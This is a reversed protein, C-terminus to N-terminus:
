DVNNARVAFATRCSRFIWDRVIKMQKHSHTDRHFTLWPQRKPLNLNSDPLRTLGLSEASYIPLLAIGADALVANHLARVSSSRLRVSAELNREIIWINEPISGYRSDLWLLKEHELSLSSPSRGALYGSSCFLGLKISPLKRVMLTDSKPEALRIAIDAEGSNLNSISTNVDFEIKLDPHASLLGDIRPALVEAIIPETSSIRIPVRLPGTRLARAVRSIQMLQRAGPEAYALITAGAETLITGTTSRKLLKFGFAAELKDIKRGITATSIRLEQSAETLSGFRVATVFCRIDDWNPEDLM